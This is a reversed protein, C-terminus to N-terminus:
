RMGHGARDEPQETGRPRRHLRCLSPPGSGALERRPPVGEGRPRRREALQHHMHAEPRVAPPDAAFRDQGAAARVSPGRAMGALLQHLRPSVGGRENASCPEPGPVWCQTTSRANAWRCQNRRKRIAWLSSVKPRMRAVSLPIKTAPEIAQPMTGSPYRGSRDIHDAREDTQGPRRHDHVRRPPLSRRTYAEPLSRGTFVAPSRRRSPGLRQAVSGTMFSATTM